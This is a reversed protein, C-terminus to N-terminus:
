NVIPTGVKRVLKEHNEETKGFVPIAVEAKKWVSGLEDQM